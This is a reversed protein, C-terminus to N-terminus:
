EHSIVFRSPSIKIHAQPIPWVPMGLWEVAPDEPDAGTLSSSVKAKELAYFYRSRKCINSIFATQQIALVIESAPIGLYQFVINRELTEWPSIHKCANQLVQFYTRHKCM